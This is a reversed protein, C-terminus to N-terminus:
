FTRPSNSFSSVGLMHVRRLSTVQEPHMSITDTLEESTQVPTFRPTAVISLSTFTTSHGDGGTLRSSYSPLCCPFASAGGRRWNNKPLGVWPPRPTVHPPSEQFICPRRTISLFQIPSSSLLRFCCANSMNKWIRPFPPGHSSTICRDLTILNVPEYSTSDSFRITQPAFRSKASQSVLPQRLLLILRWVLSSHCLPHIRKDRLSPVAEGNRPQLLLPFTRLHILPPMVDYLLPLTGYNQLPFCRRLICYAIPATLWILPRVLPTGGLPTDKYFLPQREGATSRLGFGWEHERGGVDGVVFLCM